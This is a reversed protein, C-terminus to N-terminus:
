ERNKKLYLECTCLQTCTQRHTDGGSATAHEFQCSQKCYQQIVETKKRMLVYLSDNYRLLDNIVHTM